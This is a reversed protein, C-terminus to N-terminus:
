PPADTALVDQMWRKRFRTVKGVLSIIGMSVTDLGLCIQNFLYNLPFVLFVYGDGTSYVFPQSGDTPWLDATNFERTDWMVEYM